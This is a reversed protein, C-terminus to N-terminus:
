DFYAARISDLAERIIHANECYCDKVHTYGNPSKCIFNWFDRGILLESPSFYQLVRGQKWEIDEGFRNYATAFHVSIKSADGLKNGLIAYQKLLARKESLSKKNDLDGGIKLEILHHRDQTKDYLYYDSNHVVNKKEGVCHALIDAYDTTEPTKHSDYQELLNEIFLSQGAYLCSSVKQLTEYNKKALALATKELMKGLSSDFSRFLAANFQIDKGLASLFVNNIKINLTGNPNDRDKIHRKAFDSAFKQMSNAVTDYIFDKETNMM